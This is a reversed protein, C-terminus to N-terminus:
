VLKLSEFLERIVTREDTSLKKTPYDIKFSIILNGNPMGKGPVAYKKGPQIIGSGFDKTKIKLPGDFLPVTIDKGVISEWLSITVEHHLDNGQRVFNEDDSVRIEFILDGPVDDNNLKQEGLGKFREHHGHEVGPAINLILNHDDASHGVGNCKTCSAKGKQKVGAGKCDPCAAQVIQTFFGARHMQTVNGKGQCSFCQEVCSLCPKQINIRINKQFGHYAEKLSINMVHIHHNKQRQSEGRGMPGGGMGGMGGMGFDAFMKAFIDNPNMGGGGGGGGGSNAWNADGLQDYRSRKEEDSLM